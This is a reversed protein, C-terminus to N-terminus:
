FYFPIRFRLHLCLCYPVIKYSRLHIMMADTLITHLATYFPTTRAMEPLHRKFFFVYLMWDQALSIERDYVFYHWYEHSYHLGM